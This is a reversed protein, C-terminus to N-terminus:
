SCKCISAMQDECSGWPSTCTPRRYASFPSSINGPECFWCSCLWSLSECNEGGRWAKPDLCTDGHNRWWGGRSAFVFSLPLFSCQGDDPVVCSDGQLHVIFLDAERGQCLIWFRESLAVCVQQGWPAYGRSASLFHLLALYHCQSWTGRYTSQM